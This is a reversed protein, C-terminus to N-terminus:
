NAYSNMACRGRAARPPEFAAEVRSREETVMFDLLLGSFVGVVLTATAASSGAMQLSVLSIWGRLTDRAFQQYETKGQMSLVELEFTLRILPAMEKSIFHQWLARLAEIPTSETSLLNTFVAQQQQQGYLLVEVILNEKSGFYYILMRATTGLADALSRLSLDQLGFQLIHSAIKELLQAKIRPDPKRGMIKDM